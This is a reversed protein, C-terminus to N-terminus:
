PEKVFEASTYYEATGTTAPTGLGESIVSQTYYQVELAKSAGIPFRGRIVVWTQSGSNNYGSDGVLVDAADTTNYLRARCRLVGGYFPVRIHARYTGASLTIQDSALTCIGDADSVETNLTRKTWTTAVSSGGATGSTKEDRVMVYSGITDTTGGSATQIPFGWLVAAPTTGTALVQGFAGAGKTGSRQAQGAVTHTFVYDGLSASGALNIKPVYGSIAVLGQADNAIGNPELIVGVVDNEQNASTTTTFASATGSSLIVTDGYNLTGGSKNTLLLVVSRNLATNAM